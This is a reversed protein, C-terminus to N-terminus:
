VPNKELYCGALMIALTTGGSVNEFSTEGLPLAYANVVDGEFVEDYAVLSLVYFSNGDADMLHVESVTTEEDLQTEDISIVYAQALYILKDGHKDINKTLVKYELSTDTYRDLGDAKNELFLDEKESLVVKAKETLTFPAVENEQLSEFFQLVTSEADAVNSSDGEGLMEDFDVCASLGGVVLLLSLILLITKITKRLM